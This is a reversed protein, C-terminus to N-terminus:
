IKTCNGAEFEAIAEKALDDLKGQAIDQELQQDWLQYDLDSMWQLLKQVDESPLKLIASEIEELTLM